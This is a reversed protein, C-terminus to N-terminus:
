VVPPVMKATVALEEPGLPEREALQKELVALNAESADIGSNQRQEIRRRLEDHTADFALIEFPVNCNAALNRFRQREAHRLFTADVVVSEGSGLILAALEHLRNYVKAVADASYMQEHPFESTPGELTFLRKREVDSRLRIAGHREVWQQTGTTKGSGSVGYTIWLRPHTPQAMESACHLYNNIDAAAQRSADTEACRQARSLAAVYARVMARYISYYRLVQVGEYDGTQELYQNVFRWAFEARDHKKFDMHVFAVENLVDIWRLDANFELADFPIVQEEWFVINGLHLDGHCERVFGQSKRKSFVESLRATEQITWAKVQSLRHRIEPDNILAELSDFNEFAYHAIIEPTSWRSDAAAVPCVRHLDAVTKSLQDIHSPRLEGAALMQGFLRRQDFSRMKVAYEIPTGGGGIQPQASSGTISVVEVYLTSTIRRNLRLEELCFYRRQELTSFDVFGLKVPKKIKYAFGGAVIVWSIHTELMEVPYSDDTQLQSRLNAILTLSDHM